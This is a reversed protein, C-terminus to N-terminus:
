GRIARGDGLRVVLGDSEGVVLLEELRRRRPRGLIAGLTKDDEPLIPLLQVLSLSGPQKFISIWDKKLATLLDVIAKM